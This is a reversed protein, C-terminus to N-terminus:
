KVLSSVASFEAVTSTLSGLGGNVPYVESCQTILTSFMKRTLHFNLSMRSPKDTSASVFTSPIVRNTKSRISSQLNLVLSNNDSSM